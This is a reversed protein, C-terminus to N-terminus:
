MNSQFCEGTRLTRLTRPRNRISGPASAEPDTLGSWQRVVSSPRFRLVFDPSKRVKAWIEGAAFTRSSGSIEGSRSAEALNETDIEFM